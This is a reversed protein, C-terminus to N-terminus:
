KNIDDNSNNNIKNSLYDIKIRNLAYSSRNRYLIYMELM